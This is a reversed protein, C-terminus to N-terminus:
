DIAAFIEEAEKHTAAYDRLAYFKEVLNELMPEPMESFMLRNLAYLTCVIGFAEAGMTGQYYNQARVKLTGEVVQPYMFMVTQATNSVYEWYGGKYNESMETAVNYVLNEGAMFLRAGFLTPTFHTRTTVPKIEM